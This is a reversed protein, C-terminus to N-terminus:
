APAIVLMVAHHSHDEMWVPFVGRYVKTDKSARRASTTVSFRCTRLCLCSTLEALREAAAHPMIYDTYLEGFKFSVVQSGPIKQGRHLTQFDILPEAQIPMLVLCYDMLSPEVAQVVDGFTPLRHDAIKNRTALYHVYFLRVPNDAPMLNVDYADLSAFGTRRGAAEHDADITSITDRTDGVM